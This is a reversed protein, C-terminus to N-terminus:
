VYSAVITGDHVQGSFENGVHTCTGILYQTKALAFVFCFCLCTQKSTRGSM